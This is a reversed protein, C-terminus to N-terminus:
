GPAQPAPSASVPFGLFTASMVPMVPWTLPGPTRAPPRPRQPRPSPAGGHASPAPTWPHAGPDGRRPGRAPAERGGRGRAPGGTASSVLPLRATRSCVLFHAGTKHKKFM